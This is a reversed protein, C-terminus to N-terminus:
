LAIVVVEQPDVDTEGVGGGGRVNFALLSGFTYITFIATAYAFALFFKHNRAGVCQGIWPCHHDFKLICQPPTLQPHLPPAPLLLSCPSTLRWSAEVSLLLHHRLDCGLVYRGV